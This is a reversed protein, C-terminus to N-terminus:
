SGALAAEFEGIAGELLEYVEQLREPSLANVKYLKLPAVTSYVSFYGATTIPDTEDVHDFVMEGDVEMFLRVGQSVNEAGFRIRHREGDLIQTNPLIGWRPTVGAAEGILMERQGNVSKQLEWVDHKV